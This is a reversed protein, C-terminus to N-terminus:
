RCRTRTRVHLFHIGVGDIKTHFQPLANLRRETARWDYETAWYTCLEHVYTLPVGQSWDTVPEEDPWRTRRLRDRLDTLEADPIDIRFPIV